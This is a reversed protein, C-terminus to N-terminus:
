SLELCMEQKCRISSDGQCKDFRGVTGQWIMAYQVPVMKVMDVVPNDALAGRAASLSDWLLLSSAAGGLVASVLM